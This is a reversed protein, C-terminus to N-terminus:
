GELFTLAVTFDATATGGAGDYDLVIQVDTATAIHPCEATDANLAGDFDGRDFIAPNNSDGISASTLYGDPDAVSGITILGSNANSGGASVHVLTAACPLTFTISANATLTGTIHFPYIIRMGDM